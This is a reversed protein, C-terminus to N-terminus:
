AVEYWQNIFTDGGGPIQSTINSSTRKKGATAVCIKDSLQGRLYAYVGFFTDIVGKPIGYKDEEDGLISNALGLGSGSFVLNNETKYYSYTITKM